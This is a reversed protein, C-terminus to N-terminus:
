YKFILGNPLRYYRYYKNYEEITLTDGLLIITEGIREKNNKTENIGGEINAIICSLGFLFFVSLEVKVYQLFNLLKKIKM